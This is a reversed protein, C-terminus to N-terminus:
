KILDAASLEPEWTYEEVDNKDVQDTNSPTPTSVPEMEKAM